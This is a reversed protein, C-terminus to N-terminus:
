VIVQKFITKQSVRSQSIFSFCRDHQLARSPQSSVHLRRVEQWAALAVSISGHAQLPLSRLAWATVSHPGPQRVCQCTWPTPKAPPTQVASVCIPRASQDLSM